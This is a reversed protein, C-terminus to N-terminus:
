SYMSLQFNKYNINQKSSQQSCHITITLRSAPCYTLGLQYVFMPIGCYLMFYQSAPLHVTAIRTSSLTALHVCWSAVRQYIIYMTMDYRDIVDYRLMAGDTLHVPFLLQQSTWNAYSNECGIKGLWSEYSMTTGLVVKLFIWVFSSSVNLVNSCRSVIPM